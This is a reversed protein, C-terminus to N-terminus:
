QIRPVLGKGRCHELVADAPGDIWFKEEAGNAVAECVPCYQEGNEKTGMLYLGGYALARNIIMWNCDMLPDYPSAEGELEAKINAFAQEGSKAILHSLGRVEIAARLQAWHEKCFQM